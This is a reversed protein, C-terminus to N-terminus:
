IKNIDTPNTFDARAADRGDNFCQRRVCAILWHRAKSAAPYILEFQTYNHM